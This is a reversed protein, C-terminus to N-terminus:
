RSLVSDLLISFALKTSITDISKSKRGSPLLGWTERRQKECMLIAVLDLVQGYTGQDRCRIATRVQSFGLSPVHPKSGM